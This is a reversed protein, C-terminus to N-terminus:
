IMGTDHRYIRVEMRQTRAYRKGPEVRTAFILYIFYDEKSEELPQGM